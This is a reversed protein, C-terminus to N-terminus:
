HNNIHTGSRSDRYKSPTTLTHYKFFKIFHNESRFGLVASIEKVSHLTTTLLAKAREVKAETIYEKMGKGTAKLFLRGLYNAHYGFNDAVTGVSVGRGINLRIYERIETVLTSSCEAKRRHRYLLEEIILSCMLDLSDESYGDTNAIHLLESFMNKILESDEIVTNKFDPIEYCRFHMWYFSVGTVNKTGKHPVNPLLLLASNESLAYETENECIHVEGRLVFILEFTDIVREPHSWEGVSRFLGSSVYEISKQSNLTIM